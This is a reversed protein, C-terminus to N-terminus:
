AIFLILFYIKNTAQRRRAKSAFFHLPQIQIRNNRLNAKSSKGNSNVIMSSRYNPQDKIIKWRFIHLHFLSPYYLLRNYKPPGPPAHLIFFGRSSMGRSNGVLGRRVDDAVLGVVKKLCVDIYGCQEVVM